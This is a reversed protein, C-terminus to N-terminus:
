AVAEDCYAHAEDFDLLDDRGDRSFAVSGCSCMSVSRASAPVTGKEFFARDERRRTLIQKKRDHRRRRQMKASM